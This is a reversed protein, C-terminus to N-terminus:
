RKEGSVVKDIYQKSRLINEDLIEYIRKYDLPKAETNMSDASLLRDQTETLELLEKIRANMKEKRDFAFFSKSFILSFATAHFSNSIVVQANKILTLFAEPGYSSFCKDAYPNEFFSYIATNNEEAIKLAFNGIVDSGDFDYLLLYREKLDLPTCLREWAQRDLLFVPDLVWAANKIGINKLLDVGSRERVSINDMRSLWHRVSNLCEPAIEDASFSAAYSARLTSEPAFDLYFAADRGNKLYTNWIQDSGAIYIDAKPPEAKLEGFSTYTKDTCILHKRKFSDFERKRKGFRNKLRKPLKAICYLWRLVPRDFKRSVNGWIRYHGSLYDPKYDIIQVSHGMQTLYTLLAYAQLSAGANYVDHCTITKITM